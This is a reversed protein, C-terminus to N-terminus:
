ARGSKHAEEIAQRIREFPEALDFTAVGSLREAIAQQDDGRSAPVALRNRGLAFENLHPGSRHAADVRWVSGSPQHAPSRTKPAEGTLPSAVDTDVAGSSATAESQQSGIVLAVPLSVYDRM